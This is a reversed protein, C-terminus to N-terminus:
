AHWSNFHLRGDNDTINVVKISPDLTFSNSLDASIEVNATFSETSEITIDDEITMSM